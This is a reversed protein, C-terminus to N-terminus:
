QICVDHWVIPVEDKTFIVDIEMRDAGLEQVSNPFSLLKVGWRHLRVM